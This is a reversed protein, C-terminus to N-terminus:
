CQSELRMVALVARSTWRVEWVRWRVVSECERKEGREGDGSSERMSGKSGSIAVRRLCRGSGEGSGRVAKCVRCVLVASM